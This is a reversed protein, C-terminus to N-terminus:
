LNQVLQFEPVESQVVAFYNCLQYNELKESWVPIHMLGDPVIRFIAYGANTLLRMVQQLTIKADSYTGGYEFQLAKIRHQSLLTQAGKLIEFEAGETDIKLYDIHDIAREKCFHDLSDVDVEIKDVIERSAGRDHLSSLESQNTIFYFSSKGVHDSFAINILEVQYFMNLTPSLYTHFVSPIPEFVFVHINMESQLAAKTWAGSNAGVDFVVFGPCLYNKLLNAEGDSEIVWSNLGLSNLKPNTPTYTCICEKVFQNFKLNEAAETHGRIISFMFVFLFTVYIM